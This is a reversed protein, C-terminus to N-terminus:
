EMGFLKQYFRKLLREYEGDSLNMWVRMVDKFLDPFLSISLVAVLIVGAESQKFSSNFTRDAIHREFPKLTFDNERFAELMIDHGPDERDMLILPLRPYKESFVGRIHHLLKLSDELSDDANLGQLVPILEEEAVKRIVERYLDIKRRFYYHILSKNLGARVSVAETTTEAYGHRLFLKKATELIKGETADM